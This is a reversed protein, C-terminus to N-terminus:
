EGILILDTLDYYLMITQSLIVKIPSDESSIYVFYDTFYVVIIAEFFTLDKVRWICYTMHHM